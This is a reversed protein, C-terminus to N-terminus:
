PDDLRTPRHDETQKISIRGLKNIFGVDPIM